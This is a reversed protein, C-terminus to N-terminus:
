RQKKYMYIYVKYITVKAHWDAHEPMLGEIRDYQNEGDRFTWQVNRGREEFLQDGHVPIQTLIRKQEGVSCTPVYLRQYDKLIEAMESAINPNYFEM